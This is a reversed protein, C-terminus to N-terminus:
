FNPLMSWLVLPRAGCSPPTMLWPARNLPRTGSPVFPGPERRARRRNCLLCCREFLGRDRYRIVHTEAGTPLLRGGHM